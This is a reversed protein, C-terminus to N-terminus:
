DSSIRLRDLLLKGESSLAYKLLTGNGNLKLKKRLSYLHNNVTFPSISLKSAIEKTSMHHSLFWLVKMEAKTLKTQVSQNQVTDNSCLDAHNVGFNISSKSLYPRGSLVSNICDFLESLRDDFFIFGHIYQQKVIDVLIKSKIKSFLIVRTPYRKSFIWAALDMGGMDSLEMGTILLTPPKDAILSMADQGNDVGGVLSLGISKVFNCLLDNFMKDSKAVVVTNVKPKDM